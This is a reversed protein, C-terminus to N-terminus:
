VSEMSYMFAIKELWDRKQELSPGAGYKPRHWKHGMLSAVVKEPAEVATLRDEFTHRLSYLSHDETPLMKRTRMVKNVLASLSAAKDRYRPFGQPFKTMAALAVGVLPIQRESHETKMKRGDPLVHVYPVAGKLHITDKTLNCAESLRLGTDAVLWVVAMAEENLGDLAGSGLIKDQVHAATFAARQKEVAGALRIKTFLSKLGFQHAENITDFMKSVNGMDKNATGIDLGGAEIRDQWWRRFQLVDARTIDVLPKDGLVEILNEQARSKQNRWKRVQDPSMAVLFTRQLAEFESVMDSIRLAPREEGGLVASVELADEIKGRDTLHRLRALIENVPGEALEAAPKYQLGLQRARSQAAEFRLRAEASQGDRLGKWYIDLEAALKETVTKARIGRPDDAVAIGTSVRVIGRRDLDAFDRPVRRILYWIGDRKHPRPAAQRRM